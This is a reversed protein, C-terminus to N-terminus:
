FWFRLGALAQVENDDRGAARVLDATAGFNRMWRVGIYPAIERRVEYRLRLGLEMESLGSGAGRSIDTRDNASLKLDPQLVWRQTLLLDYDVETHVSIGGHEDVYLRADIEFWQPALGQLGLLLATSPEGEREDHRIGTQVSWWRSFVHNWSVDVAFTDEDDGQAGESKLWLKDFDNGYWADLDWSFAGDHVEAQDVMFKGYRAADDMGMVDIMQKASMAPMPQSPPAPAVHSSASETPESAPTTPAMHHHEHAEQASVTSGGLLLLSAFGPLLKM